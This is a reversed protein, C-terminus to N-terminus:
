WTWGKLIRVSGNGGAGGGSVSAGGAATVTGNNTFLGRHILTISGGGSSGGGSRSASGGSRGVSQVTGNITLSGEVILILLGGAGSQGNNAWRDGYSQGSGGPNGAGGGAGRGAGGGDARGDGGKGGNGAGNQAYGGVSNVDIGGGGAGGSWTTGAAGAGSYASPGYHKNARGSGGGGCAGNAGPSGAIGHRSSNVVSSGTTVARPAGAGGEAGISRDTIYQLGLTGFLQDIGHPAFVEGAGQCGRDTMSLIGDIVCDGLCKIVLGKCRNETTVLGTIHMSTFEKYVTPGDLTSPFTAAGTLVGDAGQKNVLRAGPFGWPRHAKARKRDLSFVPM